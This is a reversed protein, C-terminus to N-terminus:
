NESLKEEQQTPQQCHYCYDTDVDRGCKGCYGLFVLKTKRTKQLISKLSKKKKSKMIHVRFEM